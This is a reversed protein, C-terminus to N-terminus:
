ILKHQLVHVHVCAYHSAHSGVHVPGASVSLVHVEIATLLPLDVVGGRGGQLALTGQINLNCFLNM